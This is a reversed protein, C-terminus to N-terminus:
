KQPIVWGAAEKLAVVDDNHDYFDSLETILCPGNNPSVVLVYARDSIDTADTDYERIFALCKGTADNCVYQIYTNDSNPDNGTYQLYASKVEAFLPTVQVGGIKQSPLPRYCLQEHNIETEWQNQAKFKDLLDNSFDDWSLRILYCVSDLYYVGNPTEKQSIVFARINKGDGKINYSDGYFDGTTSLCTFRYLRRGYSDEEILQVDVSLGESSGPINYGALIFAIKENEGVDFYADFDCSSLFITQLVFLLLLMVKGAQNARKRVHGIIVDM